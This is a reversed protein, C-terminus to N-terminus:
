LFFSLSLFQMRRQLLPSSVNFVAHRFHMTCFVRIYKKTKQTNFAEEFNRGGQCKPVCFLVNKGVNDLLLELVLNQLKISLDEWLSLKHDMQKQLALVNLLSIRSPTLLYLYLTLFHNCVKPQLSSKFLQYRTYRTLNEWHRTRRPLPTIPIKSPNFRSLFWGCEPFFTSQQFCHFFHSSIINWKTVSLYRRWKSATTEM